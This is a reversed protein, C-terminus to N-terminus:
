LASSEVCFTRKPGSSLPIHVASAENGGRWLDTVGNLDLDCSLGAPSTKKFATWRPREAKFDVKGNNNKSGM